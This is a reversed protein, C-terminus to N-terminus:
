LSCVGVKRVEHRKQPSISPYGTGHSERGVTRRIAAMEVALFRIAQGSKLLAFQFRALFWSGPHATTNRLVQDQNWEIVVVQCARLCIM